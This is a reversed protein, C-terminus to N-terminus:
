LILNERSNSLRILSWIGNKKVKVEQQNLIMVAEYKTNFVEFGQENLLGWKGHQNIPALGFQFTGVWDYRHPTLRVGQKNVFTWKSDKVVAAYGNIFLQVDDYIAATIAYGSTNVLGKKGNTVYIAAGEQYYSTIQSQIDLNNNSSAIQANMMVTSFLIVFFTLTKVLQNKM